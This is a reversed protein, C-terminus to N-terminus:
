ISLYQEVTFMDSQKETMCIVRHVRRLFADWTEVYERQTGEYQNSLPINTVIYVKTFNGYGYMEMVGRNKGVGTQGYIYNVELNRFTVKFKEERLIQRTKEM